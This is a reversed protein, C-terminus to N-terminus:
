LDAEYFSGRLEHMAIFISINLSLVYILCFYIHMFVLILCAYIFESFNERGKTLENVFPHLYDFLLFYIRYVKM